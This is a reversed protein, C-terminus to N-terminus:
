RYWNTLTATLPTGIQCGVLVIIVFFLVGRDKTPFESKQNQNRPGGDSASIRNRKRNQLNRDSKKQIGSYFLWWSTIRIRFNPIGFKKNHLFETCRMKYWFIIAIDKGALIVDVREVQSVLLHSTLPVWFLYIYQQRAFYDHQWKLM